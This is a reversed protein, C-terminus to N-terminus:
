FALYYDKLLDKFDDTYESSLDKIVIETMTEAQATHSLVFMTRFFSHQPTQKVRMCEALFFDFQKALAAFYSERKFPVLVIAIGDKNLYRAILPILESFGLESSHMAANKSQNNSSLDHEYFPPNCIICDFRQETEVKRIDGQMLLIKGGWPSAEFNEGAQQAAAEKIEIATFTAAVKQAVMLTLLGTGTGIDLINQAEPKYKIIMKVSWAGFLCADTCVKMACADQFVTFEKFSFYNNRM